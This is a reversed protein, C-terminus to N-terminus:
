AGKQSPDLIGDLRPDHRGRWGDPTRIAGVARFPPSAPRVNQHGLAELAGIQAELWSGQEVVVTRGFDMALPLALARLWELLEVALPPEVVTKRVHLM